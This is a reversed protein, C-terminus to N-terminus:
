GCKVSEKRLFGKIIKFPIPITLIPIRKVRELIPIALILPFYLPLFNRDDGLDWRFLDGNGM